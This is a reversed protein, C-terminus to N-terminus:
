EIASDAFLAWRLTTTGGNARAVMQFKYLNGSRDRVLYVPQDAEELNVIQDGIVLNAYAAELIDLIALGREDVDTEPDFLFEGDASLAEQQAVTVNTYSDFGASGAPIGSLASVNVAQTAITANRDDGFLIVGPRGGESTRYAIVQIDWELEPFENLQVLRGTDGVSLDLGIGDPFNNPNINASAEFTAPPVEPDEPGDDDNCASIFIVILLAAFLSWHRIARSFTITHTM